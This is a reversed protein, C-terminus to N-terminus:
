KSFLKFFQHANFIHSKKYGFQYMKSQYDLINQDAKQSAESCFKEQKFKLFINKQSIGQALLNKVLPRLNEFDFCYRTSYNTIYFLQEKTSKRPFRRVCKIIGGGVILRDAAIVRHPVIVKNKSLVSGYIVQKKQNIAFPTSMKSSFLKISQLHRPSICTSDLYNLDLEKITFQGHAKIFDDRKSKLYKSFKPYIPKAMLRQHTSPFFFTFLSLVTILNTNRM